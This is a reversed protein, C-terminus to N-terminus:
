AVFITKKGHLVLDKIANFIYNILQFERDTHNREITIQNLNIEGHNTIININIYYSLYHQVVPLRYKIMEEPDEFFKDEALKNLFEEQTM